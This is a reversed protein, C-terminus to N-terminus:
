SFVMGGDVIISQGTVYDSAPSALFGVVGAVDDPQEFRGLSIRALQADHYGGPPLDLLAGFQADIVDWMPTEVIGPCYSNVTIGSDAWEKAASQVFGRVAFKTAAYLSMFRGAQHGGISSACIIKGGLGQETMIRGAAQMTWLTGDVNIRWMREVDDPSVELIPGVHVIGANAVVVALGGFHDHVRDFAAHVADRDGIDLRLPLSEPAGAASLERSVAAVAEEDIDCLAVNFGQRALEQAIAKGIGRGAGTVVAVKHTLQIDSPSPM